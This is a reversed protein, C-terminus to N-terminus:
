RRAGALPGGAKQIFGALGAGDVVAAVQVDNGSAQTQLDRLPTGVGLMSLTNMLGAMQGLSRLAGAAQTATGPDGYSLTGVVNLGPPQFNGLLRVTQAGQLFPLSRSFAAVQPQTALDGLLVVSAQPNTLSDVMWGPLSREVRDDRIRDMARRLGTDNGVLATRPTLIALSWQGASYVDNGAYRSRVLPAGGTSPRGQAAALSIAAADFQGQLVAVADAGSFSYVGVAARALDRQPVFGASAGIPIAATLMDALAGVSPAGYVARADISAVAVPSGPLLALPDADIAEASLHKGAGTVVISNEHACGALAAGAALAAVLSLVARPRLKM